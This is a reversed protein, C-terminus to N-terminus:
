TCIGRQIGESVWLWLRVQLGAAAALAAKLAQRRVSDKPSGAAQLAASHAQEAQALALSHSQQLRRQFAVFELVQPHCALCPEPLSHSQEQCAGSQLVVQRTGSGWWASDVQSREKVGEHAFKM